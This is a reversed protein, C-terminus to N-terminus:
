AIWDERGGEGERMGGTKGISEKLTVWNRRVWELGTNM